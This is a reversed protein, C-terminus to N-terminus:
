RLTSEVTGISLVEVEYQGPDTVDLDLDLECELSLTVSGLVYHDNWDTDYVELRDDELIYWDGKFMFVSFTCALEARIKVLLQSSSLERIDLVYINSVDEVVDLYLTEYEAPLDLDGSHWETGVYASHLADDIIKRMDLDMQLWKQVPASAPSVGFRPRVYEDLFESLSRVLVVKNRPLNNDVLDEVLQYHLNGEKDAFDSDQSLLIVQNDVGSALSIVTDWILADRYGKGHEDFPRRRYIARNVLERHETAPYDLPDPGVRGLRRLLEAQFRATEDDSADETLPSALVRGLRRSVAALGDEVRRIERNLVRNHEGVVEDIVLQPVYITYGTTSSISLLLKFLSSEGFGERIIINTDLIIHM